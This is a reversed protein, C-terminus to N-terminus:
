QYAEVQQLLRQLQLEPDWRGAFTWKAGIQEPKLEAPSHSQLWPYLIQRSDAHSFYYRDGWANARNRDPEAPYTHRFIPKDAMNSSYQNNILYFQADYHRRGLMFGAVGDFRSDRVVLKQAPDLEGDHWLTAYAKKNIFTSNSFFAWGRPCVMDTHGEFYCNHHYYMGDTKNWLSLTDAGGAIIRCNATIIRSAQEFGRVAFQHENDGTQEGYSNVISINLLAIDSARINVVAAGWDSPHQKLWNSRLEAVRIETNDMGAGILAVKNRTLYIKETYVGPGIQIIAQTDNDPLSNIAQQISRFPADGSQAVQLRIIDASSATSIFLLLICFLFAKQM